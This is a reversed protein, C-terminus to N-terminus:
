RLRKVLSALLDRSDGIGLLRHSVIKRITDPTDSKNVSFRGQLWAGHRAPLRDSSYVTRYGHRRLAGLVRRDFRGLPLAAQDVPAGVADTLVARAEVFEVFQQTPSLGRWPIHAWGHSGITMGADRLKRLGGVDVSDQDELRGAVIFFTAKLGRQLLAPLAVEIDSLNGDDFSLRVNSQGQVVDLIDLFRDETIWYGAEGSERERTCTGIGHFCINIM